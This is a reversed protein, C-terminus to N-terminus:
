LWVTGARLSAPVSDADAAWSHAVFETPEFAWLERDLAILTAEPGTVAVASGRRLAKRLLRCAYGTPSSVNFHFTVETM